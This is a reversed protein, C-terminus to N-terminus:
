SRTLRGSRWEWLMELVFWVGLWVAALAFVLMTSSLYALSESTAVLWPYLMATTALTIAFGLVATVYHELPEVPLLCDGGSLVAQGSDGNDDSRQTSM